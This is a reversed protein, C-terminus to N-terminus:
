GTFQALLLACAFGVATALAVLPGGNEFAEPMMTDALMALIGGAALGLLAAVLDRPLGGLLAYGLVSALTCAVGAVGWVAVIYLRSRGEERMGVTSSISEPLNGVFVAALLVLGLAQGEAQLSIGIAANEPIGDLVAGALLAMGSVTAAEKSEPRRRADPEVDSPQRGERKPSQAAMRDLVVAVSVYIVAGALFGGIVFWTTGKELAEEMLDFTLASVLVGGGFALVSAVLRRSPRTFLGIGVGVVFASSAILGYLAATAM